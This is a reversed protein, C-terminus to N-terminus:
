VDIIFSSEVNQHGNICSHMVMIKCLLCLAQSNLFFIMNYLMFKIIIIYDHKLSSHKKIYLKLHLETLSYQDQQEVHKFMIHFM